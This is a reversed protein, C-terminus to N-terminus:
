EVECRYALFSLIVSIADEAGDGDTDLDALAAAQAAQEPDVGLATLGAVLADTAIGFGILGRQELEGPEAAIHLGTALSITDDGIEWVNTALEVTYVGGSIASPNHVRAMGQEDIASGGEYVETGSTNDSDNNDLDAGTFFGVEIEADEALDEVDQLQIVSIRASALMAEELAPDILAGLAWLANDTDGDADLDFGEQRGAVNLSTVGWNMTQPEVPPDSEQTDVTDATEGTEGTEQTDAPVSEAASDKGDGTCGALGGAWLGIVWRGLAWGTRRM